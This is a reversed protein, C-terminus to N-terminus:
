IFNYIYIVFYTLLFGNDNIQVFPRWNQFDIPGLHVLGCFSSWGARLQVECTTWWFHHFISNWFWPGGKKGRFSLVGLFFYIYIYTINYLILWNPHHCEWSTSLWLNHWPELWWWASFFRSRWGLEICGMMSWGLDEPGWRDGHLSQLSQRSVWIQKRSSIPTRVPWKWQM